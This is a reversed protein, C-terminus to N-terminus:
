RYRAAPVSKSIGTSFPGVSINLNLHIVMLPAPIWFFHGVSINLNLPILMLPSPILFFHGVSISSKPSNDYPRYLYPGRRRRGPGGDRPDSQTEMEDGSRDEQSARM